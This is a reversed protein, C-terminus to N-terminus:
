RRIRAATAANSGALLPRARPGSSTRDPAIKSTIPRPPVLRSGCAATVAERLIASRNDKPKLALADPAIPSIREQLDLPRRLRGLDGGGRSLTGRIPYRPPSAAM